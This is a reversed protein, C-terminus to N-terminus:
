PNSRAATAAPVNGALSALAQRARGAHLPSFHPNIALAQDLYARAEDTRGLALAIMGAHYLKLADRTGLKVAERAYPEAEDPRGSKYLAWALADAAHISPRREYARRTREVTAPLDLEHDANFLAMEIDTDVANDRYLRDMVQVLAEAQAAEATNGATRHVEALAIVYEPTPMRKTVEDYTAIAQAYQGRAAALRAMGARAHLYDPLEGLTRQYESEAAALNGSNFYLHGLQVRTWAHSETGPVGATVARRMAEIAGPVDGRLERLYSVRAYSNLDPRLNVMQQITEVAADYRGLEVEADGIIGYAAAKYPNLERARLGHALAQEFQHRALALAGLGVYTDANDPEMELSKTLAAEARPYYAPDGSERAKQLYALGLGTYVQAKAPGRTLRAQLDAIQRDTDPVAQRDATAATPGADRAAHRERGAYLGAFAAAGIVLLSAVALGLRLSLRM